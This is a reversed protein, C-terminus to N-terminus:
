TWSHRSGLPGAHGLHRSSLFDARNVIEPHFFTVENTGRQPSSLMKLHWWSHDTTPNDQCLLPSPRTISSVIVLPLNIFQEPLIIRYGRAMCAPHLQNVYIALAVFLVFIFCYLCGKFYLRLWSKTKDYAQGVKMDQFNCAHSTYVSRALM